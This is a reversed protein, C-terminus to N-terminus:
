GCGCDAMPRAADALRRAAQTGAQRAGAHRKRWSGAACHCCLKEFDPTWVYYVHGELRQHPYHDYVGWQRFEGSNNGWRRAEAQDSSLRYIFVFGFDGLVDIRHDNWFLDNLQEREDTSVNRRMSRLKGRAMALELQTVADPLDINQQQRRLDIAELMPCWRPDDLPLPEM